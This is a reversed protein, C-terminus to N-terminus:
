FGEQSIQAQQFVDDPQHMKLWKEESMCEDRDWVLDPSPWVLLIPETSLHLPSVLEYGEGIMPHMYIATAGNRCEM